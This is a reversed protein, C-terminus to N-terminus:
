SLVVRLCHVCARWIMVTPWKKHSLYIELPVYVPATAKADASLAKPDNAAETNAAVFAEM